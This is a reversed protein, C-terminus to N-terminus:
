SNKGDLEIVCQRMANPPPKPSSEQSNRYAETTERVPGGPGSFDGSSGFHLTSLRHAGSRGVYRWSNFHPMCDSRGPESGSPREDRRQDQNEASTRAQRLMGTLIPECFGGTLPEPLRNWHGTGCRIQSRQQRVRQRRVPRDPHRAVTVQDWPTLDAYTEHIKDSLKKRLADLEPGAHENTRVAIREIM